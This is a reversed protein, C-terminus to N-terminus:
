YIVKGASNPCLYLKKQEVIKKPQCVVLVLHSRDQDFISVSEFELHFWSGVLVMAVTGIRVFLFRALNGADDMEYSTPM